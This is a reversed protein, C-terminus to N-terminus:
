RAIGQTVTEPPAQGARRCGRRRAPRATASRHAWSQPRIDAALDDVVKDQEIRVLLRHEPGRRILLQELIDHSFASGQRAPMWSEDAQDPGRTGSWRPRGSGRRGPLLSEPRHRSPRHGNRRAVLPHAARCGQERHRLIADVFLEAPVFRAVNDFEAQHIGVFELNKNFCAGGSSGGQPRCTTGGAPPSTESRARSDSTSSRTSAERSTSWCWGVRARRSPRRYALSIHGLHTAAPHVMELLAVDNVIRSTRTTSPGTACTNACGGCESQFVAPVRADFRQRGGAGGRAIPAPEQPKGPTTSRSSM